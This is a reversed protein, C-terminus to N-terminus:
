LCGQSFLDLFTAVDFFNFAGDDVLDAAADGAAFAELYNLVDFFDLLDDRNFDGPCRLLPLYAVWAQEGGEPPAGLGTIVRGDDSIGVARTIDFGGLDLGFEQEMLSQLDRTGNFRDYIYACSYESSGVIYGGTSDTATAEGNGCNTYPIPQYGIPPRYFWRSHQEGGVVVRGDPTLDFPRVALPPLLTAIGDRMIWGRSTANGEAGIIVSGDHSAKTAWGTADIEAPLLILRPGDAETWIAPRETVGIRTLGVVVQGDASIGRAHVPTDAGPPIGLGVWGVGMIYLGDDGGAFRTGDPTSDRFYGGGHGVPGADRTWTMAEWHNPGFGAGYVVQGDGSVGWSRSSRPNFEWLGPIREFWPEGLARADDGPHGLVAAMITVSASIWM